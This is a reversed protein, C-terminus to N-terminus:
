DVQFTALVADAAGRQLPMQNPDHFGACVMVIEVQFRFGKCRSVLREGGYPLEIVFSSGDHGQQTIPTVDTPTSEVISGVFQALQIPESDAGLPLTLHILFYSIDSGSAIRVSMSAEGAPSPLRQNLSDTESYGTPLDLSWNGFAGEQSLQQTGFAFPSFAAAALLLVVGLLYHKLRKGSLENREMARLKDHPAALGCRSCLYRLNGGMTFTAIGLVLGAAVTGAALTYSAVAFAVLAAGGLGLVSLALMPSKRGLRTSSGCERCRRVHQDSDWGCHRCTGGAYERFVGCAECPARQGGYSSAAATTAPQFDGSGGPAPTSVPPSTPYAASAMGSERRRQIFKQFVIGCSICVEGPGQLTGCKPCEVPQDDKARELSDTPGSPRRAFPNSVTPTGAADPYSGSGAEPQVISGSGSRPFTTSGPEPFVGNVVPSTGDRGFGGSPIPFNGSGAIAAFGDWSDALSPVVDNERRAPGATSYSGSAARQVFNAQTLPAVAAHDGSREKERAYDEAKYIREKGSDGSSLRVDAGIELLPRLYDTVEDKPLDSKVIAPLQTVFSLATEVDLGFALGLGKAAVDTDVGPFRLLELTFRKQDGM